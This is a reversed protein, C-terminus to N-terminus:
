QLDVGHKRAILAALEPNTQQLEKLSAVPDSNHVELKETYHGMAKGRAIEANIAAGYNGSTEAAVSLSELRQMHSDLTLKAAGLEAMRARALWLAVKPNNRLKSAEVWISENAMNTCDYAARYADAGTKGALLGWVFKSQQATLEPLDAAIEVAETLKNQAM